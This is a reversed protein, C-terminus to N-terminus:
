ALHNEQVPIESAPISHPNHSKSNVAPNNRTKQRWNSIALFLIATSSLLCSLAVLILILKLNALYTIIPNLGLWNSMLKVEKYFLNIFALPHPIHSNSIPSPHIVLLQFQEFEIFNYIYFSINKITAVSRCFSLYTNLETDVPTM